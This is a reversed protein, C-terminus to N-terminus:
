FSSSISYLLPYLFLPTVLHRFSQSHWVFLVCVSLPRNYGCKSNLAFLLSHILIHSLARAICVSALGVGVGLAHRNIFGWLPLLLQGTDSVVYEFITEEGSLPPYSLGSEHQLMFAEMRARDELELLAGLSWMVTFIFLRELHM